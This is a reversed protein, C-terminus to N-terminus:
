FYNQFLDSDRRKMLINSYLTKIMIVVHIDHYKTTREAHISSHKRGTM